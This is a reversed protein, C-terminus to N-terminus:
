WLGEVKVGLWDVLFRVLFFGGVLVGGIVALWILFMMGRGLKGFLKGIWGWRRRFREQKAVQEYLQQFKDGKGGTQIRAIKGRLLPSFEQFSALSAFPGQSQRSAQTDARVKDAKILAVVKAESMKMKVRKGEPSTHEVYWFGTEVEAAPMTPQALMTKLRKPASTPAEKRVPTGPANIFSLQDNALGLSELDEILAACTQYRHEPKSAIMKHIMLDLRDPVEVNLTRVPKFKGKEKSMTIEVITSGDFPPEGALFYYLMIGLSYIDSRGDVHKANRAQEPPMYLPTGAGQGTTTLSMDEGWVKALGMDALKVRGKRTLLINDPKVDRHMMKLEHAHQLAHACALVIHLSDGISFKGLKKLWGQVSGGDIFEMSLYHFKEHQGVEICRLINPHDLRAMARAERKFREVNAPKSALERSLVKIAVDRDLSIQHAKYVVGMGGAGLKELIRYDGFSMQKADKRAAPGGTLARAPTDTAERVERTRPVPKVPSRSAMKTVQEPDITLDCPNASPAKARIGALLEEAAAEDTDALPKTAEM